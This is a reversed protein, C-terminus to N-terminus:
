RVRKTTTNFLITNATVGGAPASMPVTDDTNSPVGTAM